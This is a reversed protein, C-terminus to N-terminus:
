GNAPCDVRLPLGDKLSFYETCTQGSVAVERAGVDMGHFWEGLTTRGDRNWDSERWTHGQLLTALVPYSVVVLVISLALWLIGARTERRM